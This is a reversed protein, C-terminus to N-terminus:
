NTRDYYETNTYTEVDSMLLAAHNKVVRFQTGGLCLANNYMTAKSSKKLQGASVTYDFYRDYEDRSVVLYNGSEPHQQMSCSVIDGVSNYYVRYELALSETVPILSFAKALEDFSNM